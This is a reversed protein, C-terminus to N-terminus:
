YRFWKSLFTAGSKIQLDDAQINHEELVKACAEVVAQKDIGITEDLYNQVLRLWRKQHCRDFLARTTWLNKDANENLACHEVHRHAAQSTGCDMLCWGCFHHNNNRSCKLALCQKFDINDAIFVQGCGDVPCRLTLLQDEIYKRHETVTKDKLAAEVAAKERKKFELEAEM